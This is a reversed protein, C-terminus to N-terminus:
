DLCRSQCSLVSGPLDAQQRKAIKSVTSLQTNQVIRYVFIAAAGGLRCLM